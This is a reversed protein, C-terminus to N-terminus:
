AKFILKMDLLESEPTDLSSDIYRNGNRLVYIEAFQIHGCGPETARWIEDLPEMEWRDKGSLHGPAVLYVEVIDVDQDCSLNILQDTQPLFIIFRSVEENQHSVDYIVHFWQVHLRSYISTWIREGPVRADAPTIVESSDHTEFM